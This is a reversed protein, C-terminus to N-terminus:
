EHNDPQRVPSLPGDVAGEEPGGVVPEPNAAAYAAAEEETAERHFTHVAGGGVGGATGEDVMIRGDAHRFTRSM